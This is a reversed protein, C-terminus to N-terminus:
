IHYYRQWPCGGNEDFKRELSQFGDQHWEILYIEIRGLDNHESKLNGNEYYVRSVGYHEGNLWNTQYLLNGDEYYGKCIGHKKDNLYNYESNINGNAYYDFHTESGDPNKITKEKKM